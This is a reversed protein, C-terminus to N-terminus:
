DDRDKEQKIITGNTADIEYSYEYGGSKFEIEYLSYGDDKDLECEFERVDAVSVGAHALAISKAEESSILSGSNATNQSPAYYEADHDYSLITGNTADIEYDYETNGAWFEVEYEARGDDYDM